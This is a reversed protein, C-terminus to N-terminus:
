ISHTITGYINVKDEDGVFKMAIQKIFLPTDESHHLDIKGHMCDLYCNFKWATSIVAIDFGITCWLDGSNTIKKKLQETTINLKNYNYEASLFLCRHRLHIIGTCTKINTKQVKNRLESVRM